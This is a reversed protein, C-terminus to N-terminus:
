EEEYDDADFSNEQLVNDVHEIANIAYPENEETYERIFALVDRAKDFDEQSPVPM